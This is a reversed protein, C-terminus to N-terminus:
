KSSIQKKRRLKAVQLLEAANYRKKKLFFIYEEDSFQEQELKKIM